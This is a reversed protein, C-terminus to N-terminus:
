SRGPASSPSQGPRATSRVRLRHRRELGRKAARAGVQFRRAGGERQCAAEGDGHSGLRPERSVRIEEDRDSAVRRHLREDVAKPATPVSDLRYDFLFGDPSQGGGPECEGLIRAGSDHIKQERRGADFACNM